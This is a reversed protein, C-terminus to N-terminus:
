LCYSIRSYSTNCGLYIKEVKKYYLTLMKPCLNALDNFRNMYTSLDAEKMELNWLEKELPQMEELPCYEEIMPKKLEIWYM